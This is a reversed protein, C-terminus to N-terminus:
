LEGGLSLKGGVPENESCGFVTLLLKVFPYRVDPLECIFVMTKSGMAPLNRHLCIHPRM